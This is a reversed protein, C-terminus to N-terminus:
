GQGARGAITQAGSETAPSRQLRWGVALMVAV